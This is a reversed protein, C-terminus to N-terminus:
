LAKHLKAAELIESLCDASRIFQWHNQQSVRFLYYAPHDAYRVVKYSPPMEIGSSLSVEEWSRARFEALRTFFHQFAVDETQAEAKITLAWGKATPEGGAKRALWDSFEAFTPPTAPMSYNTLQVATHFGSYYAFLCEVSERLLFMSPRQRIADFLAYEHCLLNKRHYQM